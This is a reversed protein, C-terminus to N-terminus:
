LCSLVANKTCQSCVDYFELINIDKKKIKNLSVTFLVDGDGITHFPRIVVAMNTHCQIALQHLEIPSLVLDTIVATLTTNQDLIYPSKENTLLWRDRLLEGKENYIAGLANVGTLVFIKIGNYETFSAGQGYYGNGAMCGVGVQGLYVFNEQLKPDNSKSTTTFPDPILNNVAFRGLNKDPYIYNYNLNASRLTAGTVNCKGHNTYNNKKMEEIVCGSKAELGLISGGSFCIGRIQRQDSRTEDSAYTTVAGGRPDMYYRANDVNFRIYTSGCPGEDYQVSAISIEPFNFRLIKDSKSVVPVLKLNDNTIVTSLYDQKSEIDIYIKTIKENKKLNSYKTKYKIYKEQYM